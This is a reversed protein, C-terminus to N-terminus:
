KAKELQKHLSKIIDEKTKKSPPALKTYTDLVKAGPLLDKADVAEKEKGSEIQAIPKSLADKSVIIERKVGRYGMLEPLDDDGLKEPNRLEFATIFTIHIQNNKETISYHKELGSVLCNDNKMVTELIDKLMAQTMLNQTNKVVEPDSGLYKSLSQMVNSILAKLDTKTGSIEFRESGVKLSNMRAIDKGFQQQFTGYSFETLDNSHDVGQLNEAAAKLGEQSPTLKFPRISQTKAVPETHKSADVEAKKESSVKKNQLDKSDAAPKHGFIKNKTLFNVIKKTVHFDGKFFKKINAKIKTWRSPDVTAKSIQSLAEEGTASVREKAKPAEGQHSGIKVDSKEVQEQKPGQYIRNSQWNGQNVEM